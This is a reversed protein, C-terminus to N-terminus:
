CIELQLAQIQRVLDESQQMRINRHAHKSVHFFVDDTMQNREKQTLSETRDLPSHGFCGPELGRYAYWYRIGVPTPGKHSEVLLIDLVVAVGILLLVCHRTGEIGGRASSCIKMASQRVYPRGQAFVENWLVLDLQVEFFLQSRFFRFVRYSASTEPYFVFEEQHKRLSIVPQILNPSM